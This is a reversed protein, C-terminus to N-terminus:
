SFKDFKEELYHIAISVAGSLLAWLVIEKRAAWAKALAVKVKMKEGQLAADAASYSAALFFITIFQVSLVSLIMALVGLWSKDSIVFGSKELFYLPIALIAFWIGMAVMTLVPYSLLSPNIKVVQRSAKILAFARNVTNM